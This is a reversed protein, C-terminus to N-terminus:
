QIDRCPIHLLFGIAEHDTHQVSFLLDPYLDLQYSMNLSLVESSM